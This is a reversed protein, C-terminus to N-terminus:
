NESLHRKAQNRVSAYSYHKLAHNRLRKVKVSGTNHELAAIAEEVTSAQCLVPLENGLLHRGWVIGCGCMLAKLATRCEVEQYAFNVYFESESFIRAVQTEPLPEHFADCVTKLEHYLEMNYQFHEGAPDVHDWVMPGRIYVRHYGKGELARYFAILMETNKVHSTDGTAVIQKQKKEGPYFLFENIPETLRKADIGVVQLLHKQYDCTTFVGSMTSLVKRRLNGRWRLVEMESCILYKEGGSYDCVQQAYLYELAQWEGPPWGNEALVKRDAERPRIVFPDILLDGEADRIDTIVELGLAYHLASVRMRIDDTPHSATVPFNAHYNGWFESSSYIQMRKDCQRSFTERNLGLALAPRSALVEDFTDLATRGILGTRM